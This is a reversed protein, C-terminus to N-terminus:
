YPLSSPYSPKSLTQNPQHSFLIAEIVVGVIQYCQLLHRAVEAIGRIETFDGFRLLIARLSLSWKAKCAHIGGDDDSGRPFQRVYTREASPSQFRRCFPCKRNQFTFLALSLHTRLCFDCISCNYSLIARAKTIRTYKWISLRRM